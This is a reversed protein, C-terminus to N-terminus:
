AFEKLKYTTAKVWKLFFTQCIENLTNHTGKHTHIHPSNQTHPPHTNGQRAIHTHIPLHTHIPTHARTPTTHLCVFSTILHTTHMHRHTRALYLHTHTHVCFFTIYCSTTTDVWIVFTTLLLLWDVVWWCCYYIARWLSFGRPYSPMSLSLRPCVRSLSFWRSCQLTWLPVCMVRLVYFRRVLVLSHSRFVVDVVWLDSVCSSAGVLCWSAVLCGIGSDCLWFVWSLLLRIWFWRFVVSPMLSDMQLFSFLGLRVVACACSFLVDSLPCGSLSVSWFLSAWWWLVAVRWFSLSCVSSLLCSRAPATLSPLCLFVSVVLCVCCLFWFFSVTCSSVSCCFLPVAICWGLVFTGCLV